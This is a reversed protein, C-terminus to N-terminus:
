GEVAPRKLRQRLEHRPIVMFPHNKPRPKKVRPAFRPPRPPNVILGDLAVATELAGLWRLADIFSICDVDVGHRHASQGMVLRGLTDVIACVLLAKLVGPGTQCLLLDMQMTTQLQALHTEAEWRTCYLEALEDTLYCAADLLTTVLTIHRSRFGRPTVQSRRERRQLSAPLADFSQQDLWAPGIKPKCWEGHQAAKGQATIWRSRPVGKLQPTQRTGPMVFPRHPTCDVIQRAGGRLVVQLAGAVALALHASSALGRDAGLGDGPQFAPPLRRGHSLEHTPLPATIRPMLRGPGAQFFALLHVGPLGCGPHQTSPHGCADQLPATDPMACGSGDLLL